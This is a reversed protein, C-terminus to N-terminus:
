PKPQRQKPGGRVLRRKVIRLGMLRHTSMLVRLPAKLLVQTGRIHNFCCIARLPRCALHTEPRNFIGEMTVADLVILTPKNLPRQVHNMSTHRHAHRHNDTQRDTQRAPQRDTQRRTLLIPSANWATVM